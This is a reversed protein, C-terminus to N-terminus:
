ICSVFLSLSNANELIIRQVTEESSNPPIFGFNFHIIMIFSSFTMIIFMYCFSINNDNNFPKKQVINEVRELFQGYFGSTGLFIETLFVCFQLKFKNQIIICAQRYDYAFLLTHRKPYVHHLLANVINKGSDKESMKFCFEFFKM